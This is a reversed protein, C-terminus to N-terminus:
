GAKEKMRAILEEFSSNALVRQFQSRYNSVVSINEALVDYIKWKGGVRHLRYVIAYSEGNKGVIRTQVEAFSNDLTEGTYVVKQEDYLDIRDAYTKELLDTFVIVFEKQQRSDLRRWHTGLSRKAMEDFDFLPYVIERLRSIVKAREPKSDLKSRNLIEVGQNIASRIQETPEGAGLSAASGLV